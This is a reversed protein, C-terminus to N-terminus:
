DNTTFQISYLDADKMAIRLRVPKGVMESVSAGQTWRVPHDVHDGVIEPCDDLTFGEVAEGDTTQLEVRISGAASTAYNITLRNGSYRLPKTIIEGGTYPAQVSVFGDLRVSYRRLRTEGERWYGEGFLMSLENPGAHLGSPTEYLGYNQYNDGYMWRSDAPSAQPGPRLFAEDWRHFRIGDRSTMLLGDTLDSGVRPYADALERRLQKPELSRLQDTM